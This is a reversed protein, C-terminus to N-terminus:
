RKMEIVDFHSEVVPYPFEIRVKGHGAGTVLGIADNSTAQAGAGPAGGSYGEQPENKYGIAGLLVWGKGDYRDLYGSVRWWGGLKEFYLGHRTERVKCPVWTYVKIPTMGGVKTVRCHWNGRLQERTIDTRPGNLAGRVVARDAASGEEAESLAKERATDIQSLRQRDFSSIDGEWGALAPVAIAAALVGLLSVTRTRM